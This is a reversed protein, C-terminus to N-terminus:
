ILLLKSNVVDIFSNYVYELISIIEHHRMIQNLKNNIALNKKDNTLVLSIILSFISIMYTDTYM